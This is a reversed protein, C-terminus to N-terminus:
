YVMRYGPCIKGELMNKHSDRNKETAIINERINSRLAGLGSTIRGCRSRLSMTTGM